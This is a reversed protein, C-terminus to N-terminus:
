FYSVTVVAQSAVERSQLYCRYVATRQYYTYALYEAHAPACHFCLHCENTTSFRYLFYYYCAFQFCPWVNNLFRGESLSLFGATLQRLSCIFFRLLRQKPSILIEYPSPFSIVIACFLLKLQEVMVRVFEPVTQRCASTQLSCPPFPQSNNGALLLRLLLLVHHQDETKYGLQSLWTLLKTNRM